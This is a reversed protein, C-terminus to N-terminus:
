KESDITLLTIGGIAGVGAGGVWGGVRIHLFKLRPACLLCVRSDRLTSGACGNLTDCTKAPLTRGLEDSPERRLLAFLRARPFKMVSSGERTIQAASSSGRSESKPISSISSQINETKWGGLMGPCMAGNQQSLTDLSIPNQSQSM